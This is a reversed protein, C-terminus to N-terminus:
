ALGRRTRWRFEGWRRRNSRHPNREAKSCRIGFLKATLEQLRRYSDLAFSRGRGVASLGNLNIEFDLM